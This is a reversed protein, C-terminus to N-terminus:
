MRSIVQAIADLCERENRIKLKVEVYLIVATGFAKFGLVLAVQSSLRQSM